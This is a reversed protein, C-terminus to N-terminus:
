HKTQMAPEWFGAIWAEADANEPRTLEGYLFCAAEQGWNNLADVAERIARREKETM